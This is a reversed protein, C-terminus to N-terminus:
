YTAKSSGPVAARARELASRAGEKLFNDASQHAAASIRDTETKITGDPLITISIIDKSM